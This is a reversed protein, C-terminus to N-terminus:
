TTVGQEIDAEIKSMGDMTNTDANIRQATDKIEVIAQGRDCKLVSMVKAVLQKKAAILDTSTKDTNPKNYFRGADTDKPKYQPEPTDDESDKADGTPVCFAQMLAYKYAASMAKNSAKDGSDMGEGITSATVTSGDTATFTFTGKLKIVFLTGGRSTQREDTSLIEYEPTVFIQHKALLPHVANFFDDIGRFSYGQQQNRRGKSIGQIDCLIKAMNEHIAAM